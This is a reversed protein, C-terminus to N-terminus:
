LFQSLAALAASPNEEVIFHGSDVITASAQPAFSRRWIDLPAESTPLYSTGCLVHVPGLIRKRQALDAVDAARDQSAGARYDECFAHIRSPETYSARYHQLARADFVQLSKAKSWQQLLGDGYDASNKAIDQEPGPEPRSLFLWHPAVSADAAIQEWVVSTPVIDILGLKEVRGPHELALRYGVRAGRDHGVVAFRVHGLQEMVAIVDAAMARKSYLAGGTSGPASSWGYGRLDPMVVRFREALRAAIPHWMVHTQPFGHLLVLPPGSGHSRAFTRGAETDIWHSAFGPFLDALDTM